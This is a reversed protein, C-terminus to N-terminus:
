VTLPRRRRHVYRAGSADTLGKFAAIYELTYGGSPVAAIGIDLGYNSGRGSSPLQLYEEGTLTYGFGRGNESATWKSLGKVTAAYSTGLTGKANYWKGNKLDVTENETTSIFADLLLTLGDKVYFDRYDFAAGTAETGATATTDASLVTVPILSVLMVLALLGCLFRKKM